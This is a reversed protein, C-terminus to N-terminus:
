RTHFKSIKYTGELVEGGGGGLWWFFTVTTGLGERYIMCKIAFIASKANFTVIFHTVVEDVECLTCIRRVADVAFKEDVLSAASSQFLYTM